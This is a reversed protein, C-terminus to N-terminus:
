ATSGSSTPTNAATAMMMSRTALKAQRSGAQRAERRSGMWARRMSHVECRAVNGSRKVHRQCITIEGLIGQSKGDQQDEFPRFCLFPPRFPIRVAPRRTAFLPSFLSLCPVVIVQIKPNRIRIGQASHFYSPNKPESHNAFVGDPKLILLIRQPRTVNRPHIRTPSVSADRSNQHSRHVCNNPVV